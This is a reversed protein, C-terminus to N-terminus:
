REGREGDLLSAWMGSVPAAPASGALTFPASAPLVLTTDSDYARVEAVPRRHETIILITYRQM